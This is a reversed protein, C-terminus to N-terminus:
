RGALDGHADLHPHLNPHREGKCVTGTEKSCRRSHAAINPPQGGSELQMSPMSRHQLPAARKGGMPLREAQVGGGRGDALSLRSNHEACTVETHSRRNGQLYGVGWNMQVHERTGTFCANSIACKKLAPLPRLM